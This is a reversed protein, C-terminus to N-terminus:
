KITRRIFIFNKYKSITFAYTPFYHILEDIYLETKRNNQYGKTTERGTNTRDGEYIQIAIEAYIEDSLLTQLNDYVYSRELEDEIVNLVNACIVIDWNGSDLITPRVGIHNYKDYARYTYAGHARAFKEVAYSCKGCGYDFVRKNSFSIAKVISPLKTINTATKSTDRYIM